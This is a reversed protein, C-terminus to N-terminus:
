LAALLQCYRLKMNEWRYPMYDAAANAILRARKEPHRYLDVLADAFSRPNETECLVLSEPRFISRIGVTDSAIIPVHMWSYEYAKTPLVLEEFGDLRYPIIGVDGMVVFDVIQEVPSMDRFEVAESLHLEEALQELHPKFEGRGQ